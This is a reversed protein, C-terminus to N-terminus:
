SLPRSHIRDSDMVDEEYCECEKEMEKVLRRCEVRYEMCKKM